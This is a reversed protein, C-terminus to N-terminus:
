NSFRSFRELFSDPELANTKLVKVETDGILLAPSHQNAVIEREWLFKPGTFWNADILEAVKLGRSSHGAPNQDAEVHFWQKPDAVFVHFRRADNRMSGLTVQSSAWRPAPHSSGIGGANVVLHSAKRQSQSLRRFM